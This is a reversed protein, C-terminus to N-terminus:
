SKFMQRLFLRYEPVNYISVGTVKRYHIQVKTSFNLFFRKLLKQSTHSGALRCHVGLLTVLEM